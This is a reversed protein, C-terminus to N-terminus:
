GLVDNIGTTKMQPYRQKQNYQSNFDGGIIVDANPDERLIEDLRTRLTRANAVRASETEPDGAGSKWHNALLTLPAGDVDVQVELIARANLTPHSHTRTVPFRTFVVCKIEQKRESAAATVNEGIVVRYGTLGADAFAKLLLAEAPLDGIERNFQAGLMTELRVGRYRALIADYDPPTPGPTQDVEVEALMLIAPGRGEDFKAVVKAINQLKTLARAPTYSAPQYEPYAAVGDLDFLNEVNYVVVTFPRAQVLAALCLGAWGLTIRFLRM